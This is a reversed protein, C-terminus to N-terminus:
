GYKDLVKRLDRGIPTRNHKDWQGLVTECARLLETHRKEWDIPAPTSTKGTNPTRPGGIFQTNTM